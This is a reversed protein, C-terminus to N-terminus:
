YHNQESCSTPEYTIIAVILISFIAIGVYVGLTMIDDLEEIGFYGMDNLAVKLDVQEVFNAYVKNGKIYVTDKEVRYKVDSLEITETEEPIITLSALSGKSNEDFFTEKSVKKQSYCGLLNLFSFITLWIVLKKM